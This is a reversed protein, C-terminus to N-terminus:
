IAPLNKKFNLFPEPEVNRTFKCTGFTAVGHKGSMGGHNFPIRANELDLRPACGALFTVRPRDGSDAFTAATTLGIM